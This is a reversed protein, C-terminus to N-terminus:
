STKCVEYDGMTTTYSGPRLCKNITDIRKDDEFASLRVVIEVGDAIEKKNEIAGREVGYKPENVIGRFEIENFLKVSSASFNIIQASNKIKSFGETIIKRIYQGQNGDMEVAMQANLVIYKSKTYFGAKTAEIVQYGMGTEPKSLLDLEQEKNLTYYM